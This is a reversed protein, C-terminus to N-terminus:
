VSLYLILDLYEEATLDQLATNESIILKYKIKPGTSFWYITKLLLIVHSANKYTESAVKLHFSQLRSLM